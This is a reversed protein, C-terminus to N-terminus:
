MSATYREAIVNSIHIKNKLSHLILKHDLCRQVSIFESDFLGMVPPNEGFGM